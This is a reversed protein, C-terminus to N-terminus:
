LCDASLNWGGPLAKTFGINEICFSINALHPNATRMSEIVTPSGSFPDGYVPNYVSSTIRQVGDMRLLENEASTGYSAPSCARRPRASEM